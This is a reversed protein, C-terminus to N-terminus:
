GKTGKKVTNVRNIKGCVYGRVCVAMLASKEHTVEAWSTLHGALARMSNILMKREPPPPSLGTSWTYSDHARAPWRLFRHRDCNGCMPDDVGM